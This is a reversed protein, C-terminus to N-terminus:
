RGCELGYMSMQYRDRYVVPERVPEPFDKEQVTLVKRGKTKSMQAEIWRRCWHCKQVSWEPQWKVQYLSVPNGCWPCDVTRAMNGGGNNNLVVISMTVVIIIANVIMLREYRRKHIRVKAAEYKTM